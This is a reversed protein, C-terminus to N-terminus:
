RLGKIANIAEKHLDEQGSDYGDKHGDTYGKDYHEDCVADIREQIWDDLADEDWSGVRVLFYVENLTTM